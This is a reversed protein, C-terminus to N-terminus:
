GDERVVASMDCKADSDILTKGDLMKDLCIIGNMERCHGLGLQARCNEGWLYLHNKSKNYALNHCGGTKIYNAQNLKMKGGIEIPDDYGLKSYKCLQNKDTLGWGYVQYHDGVCITHNDGVNVQFLNSNQQKLQNVMRCMHSAWSRGYTDCPDVILDVDM